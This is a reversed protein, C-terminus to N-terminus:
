PSSASGVPHLDGFVFPPLSPPLSPHFTPCSPYFSVSVNGRMGGLRGNVAEGEVVHDEFSEYHGDGDDDDGDGFAEREGHCDGQGVGGFLYAKGERV